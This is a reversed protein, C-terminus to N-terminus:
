QASAVRGVSDSEVSASTLGLGLLQASIAKIVDVHVANGLARFAAERSSPLQHDDPFGQLRLAEVTTIFRRRPGIVPVQTTTLSVLAPISSIRKVRLGSPRFQLVHSWLNRMEGKCNWELKRLSAPFSERLETLWGKPIWRRNTEYWERNQRIFRKKWSPFASRRDRAHSPLLGMLENRSMRRTGGLYSTARVLTEISCKFPTKKEFPYTAGFEDTWLPFSPPELSEPFAKILINWHDICQRQQDSLTASDRETSALESNAQLYTSLHKAQAAVRQPLIDEALPGRRAVAYFRDRSQPFGLHHPSLLGQGGSKRHETAVVAYGLRQLSKRAISWTRGGDHQEYNGVNELIIYEPAHQKAILVIDHFLTGRTDLHGDQYGSKSFPQCPFGACLVDHHPVDHLHKRIDGVVTERSMDPFNELYLERLEEDIEAAFVCKHGLSSLALHFGGLGAFLDVFRV